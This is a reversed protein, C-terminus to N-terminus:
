TQMDAVLWDGDVQEMTMTVWNKYVQPQTYKKNTRTQNVLVFVQVRDAGSRVIGSRVLDAKLVTGTSPANKAIIGDFLKDYEKRYDGTLYGEAAARSEDIHKADYSLVPVVAREAAARAADTSDEVSQDSPVQVWLYGAVGAVVLTLAALGILLWGPVPVRRGGNSDKESTASTSPTSVVRPAIEADYAARAAPDLLVEAAQNLVGFRRDTPDLEAIETRWAARVEDASAARDVGLVDYWSPSDHKSM